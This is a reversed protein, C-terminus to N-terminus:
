GRTNHYYVHIMDEDLPMTIEDVVIAQNPQPTEAHSDGRKCLWRVRKPEARRQDELRLTAFLSRTEPASRLQVNGHPLYVPGLRFEYTGDELGHGMTAIMGGGDNLHAMVQAGVAETIDATKMAAPEQEKAMPNEPKEWATVEGSNHILEDIHLIVRRGGPDLMPRESRIPARMPYCTCGDGKAQGWGAATYRELVAQENRHFERETIEDRRSLEAALGASLRREGGHLFRRRDIRATM